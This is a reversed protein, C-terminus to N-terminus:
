RGAPRTQQTAAHCAQSSANQANCTEPATPAANPNVVTAAEPPKAPVSAGPAVLGHSQQIYVESTATRLSPAPRSQASGSFAASAVALALWIAARTTM